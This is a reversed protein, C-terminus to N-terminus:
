INAHYTRLRGEHLMTDSMFMKRCSQVPGRSVRPIILGVALIIGLKGGGM